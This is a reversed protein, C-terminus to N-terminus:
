LATVCHRRCPLDSTRAAHTMSTTSANRTARLQITSTDMVITMAAPHPDLPPEEALTVETVEGTGDLGEALGDDEAEADVVSAEEADVVSGEGAAVALTRGAVVGVAVGDGSGNTRRDDAKSSPPAM